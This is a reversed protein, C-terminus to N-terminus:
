STARFAELIRQQEEPTFRRLIDEVMQRTEAQTRPRRRPRPGRVHYGNSTLAKYAANIQGRTAGHVRGFAEIQDRLAAIAETDAKNPLRVEFRPGSELQLTIRGNAVTATLTDTAIKSTM